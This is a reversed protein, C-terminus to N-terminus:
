ATVAPNDQTIQEGEATTEPPAENEEFIQAMRSLVPVMTLLKRLSAERQRNFDVLARAEARLKEVDEPKMNGIEGLVHQKSVVLKWGCDKEENVCVYVIDVAKKSNTSEVQPPVLSSCNPCVVVPAIFPNLSPVKM